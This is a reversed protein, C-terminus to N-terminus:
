LRSDSNSPLECYGVVEHALRRASLYIGLALVIVTGVVFYLQTSPVIIIASSGLAVVIASFFLGACTPCATFLGTFAGLGFLWRNSARRPRNYYECMVLTVNLGVLVSVTILILMNAPILLIAFYNTVFITLVPVMGPGGCCVALVASPIQVFYEQAFNEMPRYVVIGSVIAFLMGYLGSAIVMVRRYKQERLVQAIVRLTVPVRGEVRFERLLQGLGFAIGLLGAGMLMLVVYGFYVLWNLTPTYIIPAANVYTSYTQLPIVVVAFGLAVKTVGSRFQSTTL